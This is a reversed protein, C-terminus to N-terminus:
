QFVWVPWLPGLSLKTCCTMTWCWRTMPNGNLLLKTQVRPLSARTVLLLAGNKQM